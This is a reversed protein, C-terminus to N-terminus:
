AWIAIPLGHNDRDPQDPFSVAAGRAIREAVLSCVIADLVDDAAAGKPLPQLFIDGPVGLSTLLAIREEMGAPNVKGKIKKPQQMPAGGNLVTFAVEPHSEFVCAKLTQSECLLGDLELIKPFLYFAQISVGKPPDSLTKALDSARQHLPYDDQTKGSLQAGMEVVARAPISFVSSQRQGLMPRVLKEPARGSGIIREPLGIPMDVAIIADDPVDNLLDAFQPYVTLHLPKDTGEIAAVWGAKCGDVGIFCPM